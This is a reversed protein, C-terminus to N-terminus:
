LNEIEFTYFVEFVDLHHISLEITFFELCFNITTKFFIYCIHFITVVAPMWVALEGAKSSSLVRIRGKPFTSELGTDKLWTM